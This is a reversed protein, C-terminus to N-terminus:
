LKENDKFVSNIVSEKFDMKDEKEPIDSIDNIAPAPGELAESLSIFRYGNKQYLDIIDGLFHSNLLNAHILLIQKVPKDGLKKARNEAKVTQIWIFGLYRKKIQNLNQNRQRWPIAFLQANFQYDKSDITVPAIVYQHAALYDYVKQKKEGNSEALYPYRFYKQSPFFPTLIKDARDVDAIYKEATLNNLSKHTYTHNGLIFGAQQFQELLQWQGKEISGAIVFGTAPVKKEILTQLIKMFRENERRLKGPDNNSSGVFPLDDITIAIERDQAFSLHNLFGGLTLCLIYKKLM